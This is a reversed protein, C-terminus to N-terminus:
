LVVEDAYPLDAGQRSCTVAAAAAAFRLLERVAGSDMAELAGRSLRGTRSLQALLAAQFTDGAGVTDVVEVALAPMEVAPCRATAALV